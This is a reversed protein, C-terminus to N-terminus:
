AFTRKPVLYTLCRCFAWLVACSRYDACSRDVALWPSGSFWRSGWEGERSGAARPGGAPAEAVRCLCGMTVRGGWTNVCRRRGGLATLKRPRCGLGWGGFGGGHGPKRLWCWPGSRRRRWCSGAEAALVWAGVWRCRWCSGAEAAAVLAGGASMEVAAWNGRGVGLAGGVSGEVMVGSGRGVGPGGASTEVAARSELRAARCQSM